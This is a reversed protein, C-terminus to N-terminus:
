PERVVECDYVGDESADVIAVDNGTGCNIEDKGGDRAYIKDNGPAALQVGDRMNFHDRGPGGRLKDNGKGGILVDEGHGGVLTDNGALGKLVDAGKSGVLRDAQSTGHPVGTAGLAAVSGCVFTAVFALKVIRGM